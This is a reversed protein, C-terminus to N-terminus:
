VGDAYSDLLEAAVQLALRTKGTGGVGTLTLLRTTLLLRKVEAMEHQRGVFSTLQIPLNNPLAELSKLPPFESPLGAIVLRFLHRPKRLDKLRHEGLGRLTVSEPLDGEVLDRTTQSLLVQGGHGAACIRAARHVDIGVYGTTGLTPEGTHLAMRVRVSAGGPWSRAALAHQTEVAACVADAARSFAVFFADGQTDVEHGNWRQFAARLLDRQDALLAAYDGGLQELLRTSGEIDTFLFTVTGTPLGTQSV